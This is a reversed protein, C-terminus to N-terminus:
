YNSIEEASVYQRSTYARSRGTEFNTIVIRASTSVGNSHTVYAMRIDPFVTLFGSQIGQDQRIRINGGGGGGGAANPAPSSGGGPAGGGGPGSYWDNFWYPNTTVIQNYGNGTAGVSGTGSGGFGGQGAGGPNANLSVFAPNNSAIYTYSGGAGGGGGVIAMWQENISFGTSPAGTAYGPGGSWVTQPSFLDLTYNTPVTMDLKTYGGSGGLRQPSSPPMSPPSSPGGIAYDGGKSAYVEIYFRVPFIRRGRRANKIARALGSTLPM